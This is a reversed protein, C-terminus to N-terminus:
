LPLRSYLLDDSWVGRLFLDSNIIIRFLGDWSAIAWHRLLSIQSEVPAPSARRAERPEVLSASTLRAALFSDGHKTM